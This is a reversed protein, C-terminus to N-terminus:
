RREGPRDGPEGTSCDAQLLDPLLVGDGLSVQQIDFPHELFLVM